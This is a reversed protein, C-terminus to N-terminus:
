GLGAAICAPVRSQEENRGDPALNVSCLAADTAGLSELSTTAALPDCVPPVRFATPAHRARTLWFTHHYPALRSGRQIGLPWDRQQGLEDLKGLGDLRGVGYM